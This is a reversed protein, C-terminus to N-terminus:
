QKERLWQYIVKMPLGHAVHDGPHDLSETCVFGWGRHFCMVYEEVRYPTSQTLRECSDNLEACYCYADNICPSIFRQPVLSRDKCWKDSWLDSKIGYYIM